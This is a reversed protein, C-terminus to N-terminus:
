PKPPPAASAAGVAAAIDNMAQIAKHKGIVEDIHRDATAAGLSRFTELASPPRHFGPNGGAPRATLFFVLAGAVLAFAMLCVLATMPDIM